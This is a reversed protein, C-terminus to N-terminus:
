IIQMLERLATGFVLHLFFLMSELRNLYTEFSLLLGKLMAGGNSFEKNM